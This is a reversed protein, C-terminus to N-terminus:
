AARRRAFRQRIAHNAPEEIWQYVAASLAIVAALYLPASFSRSWRSYWWLLPVHLIYMAYSAKGLFVPVRASLLRAGAGGGLALGVLLVGNLPRLATNLEVRGGLLAPWAVLAAAAVGAPWYLWAGSFPKGGRREILDLGRAAAIGMAFDSLHILPKVPDPVGATLLVRTACCAAVSAAAVKWWNSRALLMALLPFAAYFFLECSLSWAPTNWGVPLTGLWGQLLLGYAALLRGKGPVRDAAIFPLMVLLSACYVPYIRAVRAVGFRWLGGRDWRAAAYSRALVMGSLVFFTTVALYGGRVLAYGPVPLALALAELAQGHGTLHHVIVWLALPFRLGTLAPLYASTTAAARRAPEQRVVVPV